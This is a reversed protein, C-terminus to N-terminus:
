STKNNDNSKATRHEFMFIQDSLLNNKFANSVIELEAGSASFRKSIVDQFTLGHKARIASISTNSKQDIITVHSGILARSNIRSAEVMNGTLIVAYDVPGELKLMEFDEYVPHQASYVGLDTSNLANKIDGEILGTFTDPSVSRDLTGNTSSFRVRYAWSELLENQSKPLEIGTIVMSHEKNYIDNYVGGLKLTSFLKVMMSCNRDLTKVENARSDNLAESVSVYHVSNKLYQAKSNHIAIAHMLADNKHSLIHIALDGFTSNSKGLFSDLKNQALRIDNEIVQTDISVPPSTIKVRQALVPKDFESEYHELVTGSIKNEELVDVSGKINRTNIPDLGRAQLATLKANYFSTINDLLASQQNYDLLMMRGLVSGATSSIETAKVADSGYNLYATKTGEDFGLLDIVSENQSLYEAVVNDGFSNLLNPM